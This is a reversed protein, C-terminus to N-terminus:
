KDKEDDLAAKLLLFLAAAAGVTAVTVPVLAGFAM